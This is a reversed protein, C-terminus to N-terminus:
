CAPRPVDRGRSWLDVTSMMVLHGLKSAGPRCVLLHREDLVHGGEEVRLRLDLAVCVKRGDLTVENRVAGRGRDARRVLGGASNARGLLAKFATEEARV